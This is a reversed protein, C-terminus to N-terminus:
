SVLPRSAVPAYCLSCQGFELDEGQWHSASRAFEAAPRPRQPKGCAFTGCVTRVVTGDNFYIHIVGNKTNRVQILKKKGIVTFPFRRPRSVPAPVDETRGLQVVPHQPNAGEPSISWGQRLNTVVFQKYILEASGAM